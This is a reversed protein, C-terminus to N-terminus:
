QKKALIPDSNHDVDFGENMSVDDTNKHLQRQQMTKTGRTEKAPQAEVDKIDKNKDEEEAEKM